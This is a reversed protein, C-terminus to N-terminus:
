GDPDDEKSAFLLAALLIGVCGGLLGGSIFPVLFTV